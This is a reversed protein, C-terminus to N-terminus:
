FKDYFIDEPAFGKQSLVETAAKVMPPPGSLLAQRRADSRELHRDVSLHVFGTEGDWPVGEEPDSLAYVAKFGPHREALETFEDFYFVDRQGRCGFFLWCRREPWREYISYIVNKIPAIGSGGGVCVVDVDPDEDLRFEGYPGMFKVCDGAELGHVYLSGVGDPVLRVILEVVGDESALSSISYARHVPRGEFPVELRIFQGPREAVSVADDLELRIELIDYTLRRKQVVKAGYARASLVEDPIEISLDGAARTQCALRYGEALESQSLHKEETPQVDGAGTAVKVRCLGCIGRGGCASPLYVGERELALLLPEGPGASLTRAGANVDVTHDDHGM